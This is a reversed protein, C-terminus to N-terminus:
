LPARHVGRVDGLLHDVLRAAPRRGLLYLVHHPEGVVPLELLGALVEVPEYDGIPQAPLVYEDLYVALYRLEVDRLLLLHLEDLDDALEVEPEDLPSVLPYLKLRQKGLEGAYFSSGM